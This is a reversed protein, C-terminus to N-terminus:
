HGANWYKLRGHTRWGPLVRGPQSYVPTRRCPQPPPFTASPWSADRKTPGELDSLRTFLLRTPLYELEHRAHGPTEDLLVHHRSVILFPRGRWPSRGHIPTGCCPPAFSDSSTKATLAGLTPRPLAYQSGFVHLYRFKRTIHEHLYSRMEWKPM